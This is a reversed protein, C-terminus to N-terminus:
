ENQDDVDAASSKLIRIFDAYNQMHILEPAVKSSVELAVGALGEENEMVKHVPVDAMFLETIPEDDFSHSVIIDVRDLYEIDDDFHVNGMDVLMEVLRNGSSNLNTYTKLINETIFDGEKLPIISVQNELQDLSLIHQETVYRNPIEISTVDDPEIIQRSSIDRNAVYIETMKGLEANLDKYKNYFLSGAIIALIFSLTLFILARRKSEFM